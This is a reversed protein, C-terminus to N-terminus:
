AIKKPSLSMYGKLVFNFLYSGPGKKDALFSSKTTTLNPETSKRFQQSIILSGISFRCPTVPTPVYLLGKGRLQKVRIKSGLPKSLFLLLTYIHLSLNSLPSNIVSTELTKYYHKRM